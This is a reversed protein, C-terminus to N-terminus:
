KGKTVFYTLAAGLIAPVIAKGWQNNLTILSKQLRVKNRIDQMSMWLLLARESYSLTNLEGYVSSTRLILMFRRLAKHIKNTNIQNPDLSYFLITNEDDPKVRDSSYPYIIFNIFGHVSQSAVICCGSEIIPKDSYRNSLQDTTRDVVGTINQGASLQITGENPADYQTVYFSYFSNQRAAEKVFRDFEQRILQHTVIQWNLRRYRLQNRSRELLALERSILVELSEVM